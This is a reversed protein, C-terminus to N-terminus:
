GRPSLTLLAVSPPHPALQGSQPDIFKQRGLPEITAGALLLRNISDYIPMLAVTEIGFLDRQEIMKTVWALPSRGNVEDYALFPMNVFAVPGLWRKMSLADFGEPRPHPCMDHFGDPYRADLFQRIAPPTVIGRPRDPPSRPPPLTAPKPEGDDLHVTISHDGRALRERGAQISDKTWEVVISPFPAKGTMGGFKFRDKIVTIVGLPAYTHFWEMDCWGPLLARVGKGAGSEVYEVAKSVWALLKVYPPNMWAWHGPPWVCTLANQKETLHVTCLTNADTSAVDLTCLGAGFRQWLTPPTTKEDSLPKHTGTRGAYSATSLDKGFRVEPPRGREMAAFPQDEREQSDTADDDEDTILELAYALGYRGCDGTQRRRAIYADWHESLQVRRRMQPYSCGTGLQKAVEQPKIGRKKLEPQIAVWAEALERDARRAAIDADVMRRDLRTVKEAIQRLMSIQSDAWKMRDGWDDAADVCFSCRPPAQTQGASM